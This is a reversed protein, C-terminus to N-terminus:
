FSKELELYIKRPTRQYGAVQPTRSDFINSLQLHWIMPKLDTSQWSIQQNWQDTSPVDPYDKRESWYQYTTQARWQPSNFLEYDLTLQQLVNPRRALPTRTQVDYSRSWSSLYSLAIARNFAWQLSVEQGRHKTRQVNLYRYEYFSTGAIATTPGLNISQEQESNFHTFGWLLPNFNSVVKAEGNIGLDWQRSYEASLAQNGYTNSYRQFLSPLKPGQGYSGHLYLQRPFIEYRPALMLSHTTLHSQQQQHQAVAWEWSLPNFNPLKAQESHLSFTWDREKKKSVASLQDNSTKQFTSQQHYASLKVIGLPTFTSEQVLTIKQQTLQSDLIDDTLPSDNRERYKKWTHATNFDISLKSNLHHTLHLQPRFMNQKAQQDPDDSQAGPGRDLDFSQYQGLMWFSAQTKDSLQQTGSHYALQTTSSQDRETGELSQSLRPSQQHLFAFQQSNWSSHSGFTLQHESKHELTSHQQSKFHYVQHSGPGYIASRNGRLVTLEDFLQLRELLQFDLGNSPHIPDYFPLDDIVVTSQDLGLGRMFLNQQGGPGLETKMVPLSQELRQSWGQAKLEGAQKKIVVKQGQEPIPARNTFFYFQNPDAPDLAQTQEDGGEISTLPLVSIDQTGDAPSAASLLSTFFFYFLFLIPMM